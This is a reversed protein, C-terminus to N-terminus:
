QKLKKIAFYLTRISHVTDILVFKNGLINNAKPIQKVDKQM